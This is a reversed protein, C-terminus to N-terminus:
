NDSPREIHDIVVSPVPIKTPKMELGIAGWDYRHAIDPRPTPASGDGGGAPTGMDMLALEVDYKGTLGTQDVVPTAGHGLFDALETMTIQFYAVGSQKGDAGRRSVTTWSGGFEMANAPMSEGTKAEKMKIGHKGIVLAYGQVETAETHVAIKFRDELMTRLMPTMLAMEQAQNMGKMAEITAEDAKATINYPANMVWAPAGKLRGLPPRVNSPIPMGLYADLIVRALPANSASYGTPSVGWAVGASGGNNPRISVVDFASKKTGAAAGSQGMATPVAVAMWGVALLLLKRRNRAARKTM